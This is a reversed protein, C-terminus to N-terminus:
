NQPPTPNNTANETPNTDTESPSGPSFKSMLANRQQVALSRVFIWQLGPRLRSYFFRSSEESEEGLKLIGQYFEFPSLKAFNPAVRDQYDQQLGYLMAIGERGYWQRIADSGTDFFPKRTDTPSDGDLYAIAVTEVMLALDYLPEGPKPDDVGENKARKRAAVLAQEEEIGNLARVRAKIAPADEPQGEFRPLVVEEDGRTGRAIDSFKM